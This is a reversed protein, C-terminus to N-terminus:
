QTPEQGEAVDVEPPCVWRDAPMIHVPTPTGDEGCVPLTPSHVFVSLLMALLSSGANGLLTSLLGELPNM